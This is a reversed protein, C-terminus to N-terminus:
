SAEAMRRLINLDKIVIVDRELTIAGARALNALGRSVNV